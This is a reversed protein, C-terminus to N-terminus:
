NNKNNGITLFYEKNFGYNLGRYNKNYVLREIHTQENSLDNTFTFPICDQTLLTCLIFIYSEIQEPTQKTEGEIILTPEYSNKNTLENSYIYEGEREEFLIFEFISNKYFMQKIQEANLPNNNLGINIKLVNM